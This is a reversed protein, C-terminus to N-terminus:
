VMQAQLKIVPRENDIFTYNYTCWKNEGKPQASFFTQEVSTTKKKGLGRAVEVQRYLETEKSKIHRDIQAQLCCSSSNSSSLALTSLIPPTPSVM